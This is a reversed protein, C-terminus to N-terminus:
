GNFHVFIASKLMFNLDQVHLTNGDPKFKKNDADDYIFIM